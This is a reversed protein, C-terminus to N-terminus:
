TTTWFIKQEKTANQKSLFKTFQTLSSFLQVNFLFYTALFTNIIFVVKTIIFSSKFNDVESIHFTLYPVISVHSEVSASDVYIVSKGWLTARFQQTLYKEIMKQKDFVPM